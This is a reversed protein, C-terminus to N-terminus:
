RICNDMCPYCRLLNLSPLRNIIMFPRTSTAEGDSIFAWIYILLNDNIEVQILGVSFIIQFHMMRSDKISLQDWTDTLNALSM